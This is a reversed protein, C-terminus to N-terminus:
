ISKLAKDIKLAINDYKSIWDLGIVRNVVFRVVQRIQAKNGKTFYAKDLTIQGKDSVMITQEKPLAVKVGQANTYAKHIGKCTMFDNHEFTIDNDGISILSSGRSSGSDSIAKSILSDFKLM